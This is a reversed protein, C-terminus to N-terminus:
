TINIVVVINDDGSIQYKIEVVMGISVDKLTKANGGQKIQSDKEIYFVKDGDPTGVVISKEDMDVDKVKGTVDLTEATFAPGAILFVAIIFISITSLRKLM